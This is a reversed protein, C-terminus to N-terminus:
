RSIYSATAADNAALFQVYGLLPQLVLPLCVVFVTGAVAGGISGIGGIVIMALTKLAVDVNFSTTDHKGNGAHTACRGTRRVAVFPLSRRRTRGSM